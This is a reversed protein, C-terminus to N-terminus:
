KNLGIGNNATKENSPESRNSRMLDAAISEIDDDFEDIEISEKGADAEVAKEKVENDERNKYIEELEAKNSTPINERDKVLRADLEAETAGTLSTIIGKLARLSDREAVYQDHNFIWQFVSRKDFSEKIARYAPMFMGYVAEKDSPNVNKIKTLKNEVGRKGRGVDMANKWWENKKEPDVELNFDAFYLDYPDDDIYKSLNLSYNKTSTEKLTSFVWEKLYGTFRDYKDNTTINYGQPIEFVEMNAVAAQWDALRQRRANTLKSLAM